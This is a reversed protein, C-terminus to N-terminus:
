KLGLEQWKVEGNEKVTRNKDYDIQKILEEVSDFKREERLYGLLYVRLERDYLDGEYGIIHTELRVQDGKFTPCTGINSVGDYVRGDIVLATRYVGNKPIIKGEGILMNVTPFGLKRGDSRGHLVRGKIYYPAGLYKNAEDIKGSTILSRIFTASLTTGDATIEDCIHAEGGCEKMLLTLTESSGAARNGFRFNFGAVCVRCNLDRVLVKKVFDEPSYHAIAEFDAYVTFDAGLERFIEAKEGDDYLRESSAKIGGKSGFSFVGLKLGRERAIRAAERILDRHATHVGDFFGLALVSDSINFEQKLPYEFIVM